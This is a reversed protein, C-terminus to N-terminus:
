ASATPVQTSASSIDIASSVRMIRAGIGMGAKPWVPYRDLLPQPLPYHSVGRRFAGQQLSVAPDLRRSYGLADSLPEGTFHSSWWGGSGLGINQRGVASMRLWDRHREQQGLMEWRLREHWRRLREEEHLTTDLRLQSEFLYLDDLAQADRVSMTHPSMGYTSLKELRGYGFDVDPRHQFPDRRLETM